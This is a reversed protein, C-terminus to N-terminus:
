ILETAALVEFEDFLDKHRNKLFRIVKSNEFLKRVYGRVVTLNLMNEGYSAEISKFDQHITAMEEEMRAIEEASMGVSTKPKKSNKLQSKPTGMLLADVYSKSFTNTCVMLEAMEIQRSPTVKRLARVAPPAIQKDKLLEVAEADLGDLLRMSAQVARVKIHLAEAIREPDLGNDVAKMIMYHEQIPAIRNIRANYTYSEDDTSILCDAEAIGLDKLAFLRLHGDVLLYKGPEANQRTVILPEVLGVLKISARIASYRRIQREPNDLLRIPLIANLPLIVGEMEFGYQPASM